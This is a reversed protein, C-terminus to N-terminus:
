LPYIIRISRGSIPKKSSVSIATAGDDQAHAPRMQRVLGSPTAMQSIPGIPSAAIDNNAIISM